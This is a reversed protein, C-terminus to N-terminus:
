FTLLTGQYGYNNLIKLLKKEFKDSNKLECEWVTIVRWNLKKLEKENKKDRAVNEVFKKQWFDIRSKPNYAFKCGKHRHWFCGRVEIVTKYKTLVIDPNGPLDKKHLRFRFGNKHLISRVTKEPSTNKSRIRGM